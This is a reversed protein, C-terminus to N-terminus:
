RKPKSSHKYKEMADKSMQDLMKSTKQHFEPSVQASAGESKSPGGCGATPLAVAAAVVIPLCMWGISFRGNSMMVDGNHPAQCGRKGRARAEGAM